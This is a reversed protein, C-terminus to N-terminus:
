LKKRTIKLALIALATPLAIAFALYTKPLSLGATLTVELKPSYEVAIVYFWNNYEVRYGTPDGENADKLLWGYNPSEGSYWAEVDRTVTWVNWARPVETKVADTAPEFDGGPTNWLKDPFTAYSWYTLSWGTWNTTIRHVQITRALSALPAWKKGDWMFVGLVYLHLKASKVRYGKPLSSIDFKLLGREDSPQRCDTRFGSTVM